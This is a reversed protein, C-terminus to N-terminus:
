EHCNERPILTHAHYLFTRRSEVFNNKLYLHQASLNSLQTQVELSAVGQKLCQSEVQKILRSGIGRGQFSSHVALLGISCVDGICQSTIMGIASGDQYFAYVSTLPIQALIKTIWTKYLDKFSGPPLWSDVCFRSLQGSLYALEIIDSSPAAHVYAVIDNDLCDYDNLSVLSKVFNIQGGVDILRFNGIRDIDIEEKLYVYILDFGKGSARDLEEELQSLSSLYLNGVSRGFFGSDWDLLTLSSTMM